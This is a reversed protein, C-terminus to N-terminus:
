RREFVAGFFGDTGHRHPTVFLCGSADLLASHVEPQVLKLEPHTVITEEVVQENEERTFTCTAYVLRGGPALHRLGTNILGLQIAPMSSVLSPELRWRLDPGRRLAGLESCPADVLVRSVLLSAPAERGHILVRANAKAARTRLRELRPLDLDTAHVRGEPGIIAALQLSKGGAGACLDLVDDGPRADVLEGLLQSGEDQVEFRGLFEPGLGLLNPRPTTVVLARVAWRGPVTEVGHSALLQQLEERPGRARLCVPGPRNLAEALAPAETGFRADLHQGIWDPFSFRDRWAAPTPALAPLEVGLAPESFEGLERALIALLQLPSGDFHSRLRRRWLGVGFLSEACVRRQEPTFDRHARLLRDLVREAPSGELIQTLAPELIPGLGELARWPVSTLRREAETTM